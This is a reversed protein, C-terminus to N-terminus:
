TLKKFYILGLLLCIINPTWVSIAAPINSNLTLTISFKMIFIYFFCIGIGIALKYGMGGRTKKNSILFGLLTFILISFPYSFRENKEIRYLALLQSGRKEENKIFKLLERYNMSKISREQYFMEEPTINLEINKEKGSNISLETNETYIEEQYKILKWMDNNWFISHASIKSILRNNAFTQINVNYGKANKVDYNKIFIFTNNDIKKHLKKQRLVDKNKIYQHEFELRQENKEPLFWNQFYINIIFILGASIMYPVLIRLPSIHNNYLAIIENQECLKSTFFIVSIFTILGSFLVGYHIMFNMYYDNIILNTPAEHDIFNDIKESFDFVVAIALILTISITFTSLFNKIIYYDFKKM